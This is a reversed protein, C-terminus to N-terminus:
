RVFCNVLFSSLWIVATASLEGEAWLDNLVYNSNLDIRIVYYTILFMFAISQEFTM